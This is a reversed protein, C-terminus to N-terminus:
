EPTTVEYKTSKGEGKRSILMTRKGAQINLLIERVIKNKAGISFLRNKGADKTAEAPILDVLEFDIKDSKYAVGKDDTGTSLRKYAKGTFTMSATKGSEIQRFRSSKQAEKKQQELETNLDQLGIEQGNSVFETQAGNTTTENAM